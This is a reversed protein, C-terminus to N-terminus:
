FTEHFHKYDRDVTMWLKKWFLVDCNDGNRRESSVKFITCWIVYEYNRLFQFMLLVDELNRISSKYSKKRIYIEM